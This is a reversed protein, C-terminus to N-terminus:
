TADSAGVEPTEGGERAISPPDTPDFHAKQYDGYIGVQSTLKLPVLSTTVPNGSDGIKISGGRSLLWAWFKQEAFQAGNRIQSQIRTNLVARRKRDEIVASGDSTFTWSPDVQLFVQRDLMRYSLKLSRHRYFYIKKGKKYPLILMRRSQNVNPIWTISKPTVENIKGYYKKGIADFSLGLSACFHCAHLTLLRTLLKKYNEDGLWFGENVVRIDSTDVARRLTSEEGSIDTPTYLRNSFIVCTPMKCELDQAISQRSSYSTPASFIHPLKEVEYLNTYLVEDITDPKHSYLCAAAQSAIGKPMYDGKKVSHSLSRGVILSVVNDMKKDFDAGRRLDIWKRIRLLPPINCDGVIIPIIRGARGSPDRLLAADREATPWEADISASSLLLLFFRASSLAKNIKDVISEGPGIAAEDLFVNMSGGSTGYNQLYDRIKKAIEADKHSYSIFADYSSNGQETM